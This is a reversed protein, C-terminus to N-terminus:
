EPVMETAFLVYKGECWNTIPSGDNNLSVSLPDPLFWAVRVATVRVRRGEFEYAAKRQQELPLAGSICRAHRSSEYASRDDYLAFEGVFRVWGVYSQTAHAQDRRSGGEGACGGSVLVAALIAPVVRKARFTM